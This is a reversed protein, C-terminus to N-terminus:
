VDGSKQTKQGKEFARLLRKLDYGYSAFLCTFLKCGATLRLCDDELMLREATEGKRQRKIPRVRYRFAVLKELHRRLIPM